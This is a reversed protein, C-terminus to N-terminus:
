RNNENRALYAHEAEYFEVVSSLSTGKKCCGGLIEEWLGGWHGIWAMGM